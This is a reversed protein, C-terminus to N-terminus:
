RGFEGDGYASKWVERFRIRARAYRQRATGGDIGLLIAAREKTLEGYHILVMIQQQDATLAALVREIREKVEQRGLAANPSTGANRLGLAFQQSSRDPWAHEAGCDRRKRTQFDHDDFLANLVIRYFWAELEMGSRGFDEWRRRAGVFAAQLIDEPDRRAALKAPSRWRPSVASAVVVAVSLRQSVGSRSLPRGQGNPYHCYACAFM